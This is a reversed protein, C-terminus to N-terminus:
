NELLEKYIAITYDEESWITSKHRDFKMKIGDTIKNNEWDEWLKIKLRNIEQDKSDSLAHIDRYRLFVENVFRERVKQKNATILLTDPFTRRAFAQLTYIKMKKPLLGKRNWINVVTEIAEQDLPNLNLAALAMELNTGAKEM